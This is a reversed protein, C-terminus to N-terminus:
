WAGNVVFSLANAATSELRACENRTNVAVVDLAKRLTATGAGPATLDLPAGRLTASLRIADPGAHLVHYQAGDALGGVPTGNARYVVREGHRFLHGPIAITDAAADVARAADFACEMKRFGIANTAGRFACGDLLVTGSGNLFLATAAGPGADIGLGVIRCSVKPRLELPIASGAFGRLTVADLVIEDAEIVNYIGGGAYDGTPAAMLHRDVTLSRATIRRVGRMDFTRERVASLHGGGIELHGIHPPRANDANSDPDTNVHFATGVNPKSPSLVSGQVSQILISAVEAAGEGLTNRSDLLMGIGDAQISGVIVDGQAVEKLEVYVAQEINKGTIRGVNVRDVRKGTQGQKISLATARGTGPSAADELSILEINVRKAGDAIKAFEVPSVTGAANGDKINKGVIQGFSAEVMEHVLGRKDVDECEINVGGRANEVHVSSNRWRTVGGPKGGIAFTGKGDFVAVDGSVEGCLRTASAGLRIPQGNRATIKDISVKLVGYCAFPAGFGQRKANEDFVFGPASFEDQNEVFVIAIDDDEPGNQLADSIRLVTTGASRWAVSGTALLCCWKHSGYGKPTRVIEGFEYTRAQFRLRPTFDAAAQLRALDGPAGTGEFGFAEVPYYGDQDAVVDLGVGGATTLHANRTGAEAVRYAYGAATRVVGGIAFFRPPRTDARVAAHDRLMEQAQLVARRGTKPLALVTAGNPTITADAVIRYMGHPSCCVDGESFLSTDAEEASSVVRVSQAKVTDFKLVATAFVSM